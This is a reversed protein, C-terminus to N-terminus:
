LKVEFDPTVNSSTPLTLTPYSHPLHLIHCSKLMRHLKTRIRAVTRSCQLHECFYLDDQFCDNAIVHATVHNCNKHERLGIARTFAM